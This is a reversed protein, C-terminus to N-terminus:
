RKEVAISNLQRGNGAVLRNGACVIESFSFDGIRGASGINGTLLNISLAESSIADRAITNAYGNAVSPMGINGNEQCQRHGRNTHLTLSAGNGWLFLEPSAGCLIWATDAPVSSVLVTVGSQTFEIIRKKGNSEVLCAVGNHSAVSHLCAGGLDQETTRCDRLVCVTGTNSTRQTLFAFESTVVPAFTHLDQRFKSLPIQATISQGKWSMFQISGDVSSVVSVHDGSALMCQISQASHLLAAKSERGQLWAVLDVVFLGQPHAFYLCGEAAEPTIACLLDPCSIPKALDDLNAGLAHLMGSCDCAFFAEGYGVLTGDRYPLLRHESKTDIATFALSAGCEPCYRALPSQV